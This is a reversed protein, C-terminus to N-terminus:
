AWEEYGNDELMEVAAEAPTLDGDYADRYGWDEMDRYSMHTRRMVAKDVYHLWLAFMPDDTYHRAMAAEGHKDVWAALAPGPLTDIWANM